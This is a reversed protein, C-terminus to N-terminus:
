GEAATSALLEMLVLTEWGRGLLLRDVEAVERFGAEAYASVPGNPAPSRRGVVVHIRRYGRGILHDVTSRLLADRYDPGQELNYLCQIMATQSSKDPVPYPSLSAPLFEAHCVAQQEHYGILGITESGTEEAVRLYWDQKAVMERCGSRCGCIHASDMLNNPTLPVIREPVGRERSPISETQTRPAGSRALAEIQGASFPSSLRLTGDIIVLFPCFMRHHEAAERDRWIDIVELGVQLRDAAERSQAVVWDHWPCQLGSHLVVLSHEM